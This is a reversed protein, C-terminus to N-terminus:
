SEETDASYYKKQVIGNILAQLANADDPSFTARIPLTRCQSKLHSHASSTEPNIRVFDKTTTVLQAELEEARRLLSDADKASYVHHDPFSRMDVIQGGLKQLLGFFRHPNGIGAFALLPKKAIWQVDGVPKVNAEFMPLIHPQLTSVLNASAPGYIVLAHVKLLQVALPARLPGSPIVHGNGIGRRGDLVAITLDKFLGPNQLGDDMIIVTGLKEREILDAGLTRDRAIVTTAHNALLLPEDGVNGAHDTQLSVAHPGKFRGGHGRSLFVPQGGAAKVMDALAIALPTKGTGGATFNGVCIVPLSARKQPSRQMRNQSIRAFLVSLPYLLRATLSRKDGYWWHPEELPL